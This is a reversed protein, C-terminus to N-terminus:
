VRTEHLVNRRFPYCVAAHLDVLYISISTNYFLHIIWTTKYVMFPSMMETAIISSIIIFFAYEIPKRYSIRYVRYGPFILLRILFFTCFHPILYVIYGNEFCFNMWWISVQELIACLILGVVGWAYFMRHKAESMQSREEAYFDDDWVKKLFSFVLFLWISMAHIFLSFQSTKQHEPTVIFLIFFGSILVTTTGFVLSLM